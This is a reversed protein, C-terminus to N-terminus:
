DDEDTGGEIMGRNLQRQRDGKRDGELEVKKSQGDGGIAM